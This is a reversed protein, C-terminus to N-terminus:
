SVSPVEGSSAVPAANTEPNAAPSASTEEKLDAIGNVRVSLIACGCDICYWHTGNPHRALRSPCEPNREHTLKPDLVVIQIPTPATLAMEAPMGEQQRDQIAAEIELMAERLEEISAQLIEASRM